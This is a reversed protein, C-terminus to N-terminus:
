DVIFSLRSKSASTKKVQEKLARFSEMPGKTAFLNVLWAPISGGPDALLYYDIRVKNGIPTLIWKGSGAVVRVIGEKEPIYNPINPGDLTVIKTRPDQKVKLHAIFDRNSAPWPIEIESYYYLESPSVRKLLVASKTAYVWQDATSVDLLITVLQSLTAELTCEVKIEKIPSELSPRMYIKIDEKNVKLEWNREDTDMQLFLALLFTLPLKLLM